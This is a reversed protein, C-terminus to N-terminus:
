AFRGLRIQIGELLSQALALVPSSSDRQVFAHGAHVEVHLRLIVGACRAVERVHDEIPLAPLGRWGVEECTLRPADLVSSLQQEIVKGAIVMDALKACVLQYGILPTGMVVRTDAYDYADCVLRGTLGALVCARSVLPTAGGADSPSALRDCGAEFAHVIAAPERQPPLSVGLLVACTPLDARAAEVLDRWRGRLDATSLTAHREAPDRAALEGRADVLADANFWSVVHATM